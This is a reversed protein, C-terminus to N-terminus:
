ICGFRGGEGGNDEGVDLTDDECCEGFPVIMLKAQNLLRRYFKTLNLTSNAIQNICAYTRRYGVVLM